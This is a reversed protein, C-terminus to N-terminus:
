SKDTNSLKLYEVAKLLLISNDKFMGLGSNCNSCLLGRVLGTDHCHDISLKRHYTNCILCNGQQTSYLKDYDEITMDYNSKLKQKRKRLSEKIPNAKRKIAKYKNRCVKCSSQTSGTNKNIISFCSIDKSETCTTCIKLGEVIPKHPKHGYRCEKCFGLYGDKNVSCQKFDTLEKEVKCKKCIKM